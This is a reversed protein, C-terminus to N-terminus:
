AVFPKKWGVDCLHDVYPINHEICIKRFWFKVLVFTRPSILVDSHMLLLVDALLCIQWGHQSLKFQRGYSERYKYKLPISYFYVVIIVWPARAFYLIHKLTNFM